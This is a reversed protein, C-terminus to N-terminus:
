TIYYVLTYSISFKYTFSNLNLVLILIESFVIISSFSFMLYFIDSTLRYRPNNQLNRM